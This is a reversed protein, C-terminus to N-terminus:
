NTIGPNQSLETGLEQFSRSVQFIALWMEAQNPDNLIVMGSRIRAAPMGGLQVPYRQRCHAAFEPFGAFGARKLTAGQLITFQGWSGPCTRKMLEVTLRGMTYRPNIEVVPKLRVQGDAARYVFADV